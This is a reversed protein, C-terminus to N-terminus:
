KEMKVVGNILSLYMGTTVFEEEIKSFDQKSLTKIRPKLAELQTRISDFEKIMKDAESQLSKRESKGLKDPDQTHLIEFVRQGIRAAQELLSNMKEIDPYLKLDENFMQNLRHRINDPMYLHWIDQGEFTIVLHLRQLLLFRFKDCPHEAYHDQKNKLLESLITLEEKPLLNAFLAPENSFLHELIVALQAKTYNKSVKVNLLHFTDLINAKSDYMAMEKISLDDLLPENYTVTM